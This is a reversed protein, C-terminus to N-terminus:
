DFASSLTVLEEIENQVISYYGALQCVIFLLPYKM